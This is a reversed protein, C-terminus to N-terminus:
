EKRGMGPEVILTENEVTINWVGGGLSWSGSDVTWWGSEMVWQRREMSWWGPEVAWVRVKHSNSDRTTLEM